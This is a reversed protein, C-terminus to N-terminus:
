SNQKLREIEEKLEGVRNVAYVANCVAIHGALEDADKELQILERQLLYFLNQLHMTDNDSAENIIAGELAYALSNIQQVRTVINDLNTM